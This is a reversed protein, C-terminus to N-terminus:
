DQNNRRGFHRVRGRRLLLLGSEEFPDVLCQEQCGDLLYDCSRFRPLFRRRVGDRLDAFGFDAKVFGGTGYQARGVLQGCFRFRLNGGGKSIAYTYNSISQATNGAVISHTMQLNPAYIGGGYADARYAASTTYTSALATNDSVTTNSLILAGEAYIGGGYATAKGYELALVSARASNDTVLCDELTLSLATSYIGGGRALAGGTTEVTALGNQITLNKIVIESSSGTLTFVRVASGGDVVFGDELNSADITVTKAIEITGLSKSLLCIGGGLDPDFTVTTPLPVGGITSGAYYLAERLSTTSNTLDFEDNLTTVVTLGSWGAGVEPTSNESDTYPSSGIAKVTFYYKYDRNLNTFTYFTDATQVYHKVASRSSWWTIQYSDANEVVNWSLFISNEGAVVEAAVGTPTRLKGSILTVEDSFDSDKFHGQSDVACVSFHYTLTGNAKTLTYTTDSVTIDTYNTKSITWYRLTYRDANEVATWALTIVSASEAEAELNEPVELTSPQISIIGSKKSPTYKAKDSCAQITFYWNSDPATVTMEYSINRVEVETWHILDDSYRLVYYDANTVSKWTLILDSPSQATVSFNEPTELMLVFSPDYEYAGLDVRTGTIRDAGALDTSGKVYGLNGRDIVQSYATLMLDAEGPNILIGNANFTPNIKFLPASDIYEYESDVTSWVTNPSLVYYGRSTGSASNSLNVNKANLAVISNYVNLTKDNYIGSGLFQQQETLSVTSTYSNKSLNGAVTCNYLNTVGANYLAGGGARQILASGTYLTNNFFESDSFTLNGSNYVGAGFARGSQISNELVSTTGVNATGANYIGGGYVSMAASNNVATNGVITSDTITLVGTEDNYIGGGSDISTNGFVESRSISFVGANYVGGGLVAGRASVTNRTVASEYLYIEGAEGNWIGGGQAHTTADGSGTASNGTVTVEKLQLVGAVNRIGGGCYVVGQDAGTSSGGRLTLNGFNVQGEDVTLLTSYGAADITLPNTGYAVITLSGYASSDISITMADDVSSFLLINNGVTTRLVILDDEATAAAQTIAEKLNEISLSNSEIEIVNVDSKSSPLAFEEYNARINEYDTATVALLLRDELSEIRLRQNRLLRKEGKGIGVKGFSSNLVGQKKVLRNIRAFMKGM